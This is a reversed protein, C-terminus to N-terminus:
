YPKVQVTMEEFTHERLVKVLIHHGCSRGCGEMGSTEEPNKM